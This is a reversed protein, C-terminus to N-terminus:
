ELFLDVTREAREGTATDNIRVTLTYVGPEQGSADLLVYQRDDSDTVQVPFATSVGRERGGFLRKFVRGLGSSEDKPVLRAEIEYEALGDAQALNYVEFYVAIPDGVAYVGWPSPLIAFDGRQVRGASARVGEEVQVALLLDSLHLGPAAYDPVQVAERHVGAAAGSATEFEVAVEYDGPATQLTETGIWLTVGDYGVIQAAPLGYVTKRREAMLTNDGGVLFAGTRITTQVDGGGASEALPVGFPVYVEAQGREGRFSAARAPIRVERGPVEFEYREPIERFAERARIVYDLGDVRAGNAFLSAPPSYLVFEGNRNPDEFVFQLDGYDWVNFRNSATVVGPLSFPDAQPDFSEVVAGFEGEIIVDRDPRGYRVYVEGRETRWGPLDLDESRYLLDATTLRAYHELRRENYPNLFRPDRASWFRAAYTEPDARFAAVEAPPLVMELDSFVAQDEADMLEIARGFAADASEWDGTEHYALGIYRWMEPDEPFHVFMDRLHPLARPWDGSLVALRMVDDYLSRRRPDQALATELHFRASRLARDARRSLSVSSEEILDLDFRSGPQVMEAAAVLDGAQAQQQADTIPDLGFGSESEARQQNVEAVAALPDAADDVIYVPTYFSLGSTRVANRYQYYDRIYLQAAEEHAFANLSDIALIRRSLLSRRRAREFDVWFNWGDTQLTALEATMYEVNDPELEVATRIAERARGIDQQEGVAFLTRALFFHAEASQADAAVAQRFAEAAAPTDGERLAQRGREVLPDAPSGGTPQAQSAAALLLLVLATAVRMPALDNGECYPVCRPGSLPRRTSRGM